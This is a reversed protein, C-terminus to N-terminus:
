GLGERETMKMGKEQGGIGRKSNRMQKCLRDHSNKGMARLDAGKHWINKRKKEGTIIERGQWVSGM